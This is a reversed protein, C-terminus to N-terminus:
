HFKDLHSEYDVKLSDVKVKLVELSDKLASLETKMDELIQAQQKISEVGKCAILTTFVILILARIM